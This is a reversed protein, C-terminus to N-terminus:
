SWISPPYPERFVFHFNSIYNMDLSNILYESFHDYVSGSYRHPHIKLFNELRESAKKYIWSWNLYRAQLQTQKGYTYENGNSRQM